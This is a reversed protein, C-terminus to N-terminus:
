YPRGPTGSSRKTARTPSCASSSARSTAGHGAFRGRLRAGVGRCPGRRMWALRRAAGGASTCALWTVVWALALAMSPLAFLGCVGALGGAPLALRERDVAKWALWASVLMPLALLEEAQARAEFTGWLKPSWLGLCFADVRGRRRGGWKGGCGAQVTVTPRPLRARSGCPGGVVVGGARPRGAAARPAREVLLSPAAAPRRLPGPIPALRAPDLACLM